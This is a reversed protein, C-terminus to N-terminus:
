TKLEFLKHYMKLIKKALFSNILDKRILYDLFKEMEKKCKIAKECIRRILQPTDNTYVKLVRGTTDLTDLTDQDFIVRPAM